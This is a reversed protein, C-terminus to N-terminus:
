PWVIASPGNLQRDCTLPTVQVAAGPRPKLIDVDPVMETPHRCATLPRIADPTEV